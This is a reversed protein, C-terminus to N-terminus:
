SPRGGHRRVRSRRGPHGTDARRAPWAELTLALGFPTGLALDALELSIRIEIADLPVSRSGPLFNPRGLWGSRTRGCRNYDGYGGQGDCNQASVHFWWDDASWLESKENNPDILVEPLLLEGDPYDPYEFGAYLYDDDHKVYVLISAEGHAATFEVLVGDEWEELQFAGDITPSSGHPIELRDVGLAPATLILVVLLPLLKRM